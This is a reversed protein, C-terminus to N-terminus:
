LGEKGLVYFRLSKGTGRRWHRHDPGGDLGLGDNAFSGLATVNALPGYSQPLRWSGDTSPPMFGGILDSDLCWPSFEIFILLFERTSAAAKATKSPPEIARLFADGAVREEGEATSCAASLESLFSISFCAQLPNFEHLPLPPPDFFSNPLFEQLPFPAQAVSPELGGVLYCARGSPATAHAPGKKEFMHWGISKVPERIVPDADTQPNGMVGVDEFLFGFHVPELDDRLIVHDVAPARQCRKVENKLTIAHDLM